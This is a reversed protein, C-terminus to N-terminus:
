PNDEETVGETVAETVTEETAEPAEQDEDRPPAPLLEAVEWRGDRLALATTYTTRWEPEGEGSSLLADVVVTQRGSEDERSGWRSLQAESCVPPDAAHMTLGPRLYRSLDGQGCLYAALFGTVTEVAPDDAPVPGMTVDIAIRETAPPAAVAAPLGVAVPGPGRADVAVQWFGEHGPPGVAVTVSWYDDDVETIDISRVPAAVTAPKASAPLEPTYGLFPVLAGAESGALLYTSVYREAFGTAVWQAGGIDEAPNATAEATGSASTSRLLAGVGGFAALLILLWLLASTARALTTESVLRSRGWRSGRARLEMSPISAV